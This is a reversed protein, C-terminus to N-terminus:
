LRNRHPGPRSRLDAETVLGNQGTAKGAGDTMPQSIQYRWHHGPAQVSFQCADSRSRAERAAIAVPSRSALQRGVGFSQGDIDRTKLKRVSRGQADLRFALSSRIRGKRSDAGSGAAPEGCDESRSRVWGMGIM